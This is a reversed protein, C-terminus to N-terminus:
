LCETLFMAIKRYRLVAKFTMGHMRGVLRSEEFVLHMGGDGTLFTFGTVLVGPSSIHRQNGLPCLEAVLAMLLNFRGIPFAM